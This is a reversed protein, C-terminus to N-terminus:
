YAAIEGNRLFEMFKVTESLYVNQNMQSCDSTATCFLFTQTDVHQARMVQEAIKYVASAFLKDEGAGDGRYSHLRDVKARKLQGHGVFM